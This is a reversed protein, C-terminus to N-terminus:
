GTIFVLERGIQWQTELYDHASFDRPKGEMGCDERKVEEWDWSM